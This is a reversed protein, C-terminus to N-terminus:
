RLYNKSFKLATARVYFLLKKMGFHKYNIKWGGCWDGSSLISDVRITSLHFHLASCQTDRPVSVLLLESDRWKNRQKSTALKIGVAWSEAQNRVASMDLQAVKILTYPKTVSCDRRPPCEVPSLSCSHNMYWPLVLGFTLPSFLRSLLEFILVTVSSPLCSSRIM